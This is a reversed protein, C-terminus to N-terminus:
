SPITSSPGDSHHYNKPIHPTNTHDMLHEIINGTSALTTWFGEGAGMFVGLFGM